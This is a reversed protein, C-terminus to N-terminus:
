VEVDVLPQAAEVIYLLPIKMVMADSSEMMWIDESGDAVLAARGRTV